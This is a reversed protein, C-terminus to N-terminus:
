FKRKLLECFGVEKSEIKNKTRTSIGSITAIYEGTVRNLTYNAKESEFDLPIFYPVGSGFGKFWYADSTPIFSKARAILTTLGGSAAGSKTDVKLDILKQEATTNNGETYSLTINCVLNINEAKASNLCLLLTILLLHKM